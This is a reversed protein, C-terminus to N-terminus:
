RHIVRTFFGRLRRALDDTLGNSLSFIQGGVDLDFTRARIIEEAQFRRADQTTTFLEGFETAIEHVLASRVGETAAEGAALARVNASDAGDALWRQAREPLDSVDLMGLMRTAEARRIDRRAAVNASRGREGKAEAPM